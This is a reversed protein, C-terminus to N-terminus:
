MGKAPYGEKNWAGGEYARLFTAELARSTLPKEIIEHVGLERAARVLADHKDATFLIEVAPRHFSHVRRLFELGDMDPLRCDALIIDQSAHSLAAIGAVATEMVLIRCGESEFFYNLSTRVWEDDEVLLIKRTQLWRYLDVSKSM